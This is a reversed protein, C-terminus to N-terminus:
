RVRVQRQTWGVGGRDDRVVFWLTALDEDALRQAAWSNDADDSLRVEFDFVGQTAYVQVVQQEAFRQGREDVGSEAPTTEIGLRHRLAKPCDDIEDTKKQCAEAEPIEDEPWPEGDWSLAEISPNDNQDHERVFIRKVGVEFRELPLLEGDSDRCRVPVGATDGGEITGPCAVIAVGLLGSREYQALEGVQVQLDQQAPDYPTFPGDLEGLCDEVTSSAPDTCTTYAWSLTEPEPEATLAELSVSQGPQAFPADARLALLRLKTVRAGPEFDDECAALALLAAITLISRVSSM